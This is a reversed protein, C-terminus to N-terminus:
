SQKLHIQALKLINITPLYINLLDKESTKTYYYFVVFANSTFYISSMCQSVIQVAPNNFILECTNM